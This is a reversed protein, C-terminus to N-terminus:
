AFNPDLVREGDRPGSIRTPLELSGLSPLQLDSGEVM